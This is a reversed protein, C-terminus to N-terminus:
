DKVIRAETYQNGYVRMNGQANTQRVARGPNEHLFWNHHIEARRRPVGRIVVAPVDTAMFFNHHILIVDGAVDTGDGRDRGGHMDFSHGNAHGFVINYRAEYGTGPRGTGAIHHRCWDFVNAEILAYSRDLCVGYGLGSRQNHHIYNHHIHAEASGEKLYVAAHSWGWLECNDVELRPHVAIIGDSNPISYYAKSGGEERLQRLQETRRELDPGRLRIGTIRVGEGGTTFLPSTAVNVSYLLAGRNSEGDRGSALTVGGPIVVGEVGSMDIVADNDVFVTQGRSARGLADLLEDLTGVRFDGGTVIGGYSKGGGIPDGSPNRWAGFTEGCAAARPALCVLLVGIVALFKERM